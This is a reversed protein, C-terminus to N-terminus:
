TYSIAAEVKARRHTREGLRSSRHALWEETRGERSHRQYTALRSGPPSARGSAALISLVARASICPRPM